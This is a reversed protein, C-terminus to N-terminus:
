SKDVVDLDDIMNQRTKKLAVVFFYFFIAKFNKNELVGDKKIKQFVM